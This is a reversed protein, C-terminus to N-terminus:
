AYEESFRPTVATISGLQSVVLLKCGKSKLLNSVAEVQRVGNRTYYAAVYLIKVDNLRRELGLLGEYEAGNLQLNLYDVTELQQQDIINDLTTTAVTEKRTCWDHEDPKALHYANPYEFEAEMQGPEKWIGCHLPTIIHEMGNANINRCMVEFNRRGIEIAIVKGSPGVVEAMGIAKLGIFAGGEIVVGGPGPFYRGHAGWGYRKVIDTAPQYTEPKLGRPVIDRLAGYIHVYRTRSPYNYFIRGNSLEIRVLGDETRINKYDLTRLVNMPAVRKPITSVLNSLTRRLTADLSENRVEALMKIKNIQRDNLRLVRIMIDMADHTSGPSLFSRLIMIPRRLKSLATKLINEASRWRRSLLPVIEAM